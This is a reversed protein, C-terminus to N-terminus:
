GEGYEVFLSRLATRHPLNVRLGADFYDEISGYRREVEDFAAELNERRVGVLSDLLAVDGGRTVFADRAPKTMPELLRGSLLYDTMVHEHPVGLLTLLAAIAWGTRDKGTSCHIMAPAREADALGVFVDHLGRRASDLRVLDRFRQESIDDATQHSLANRAVQPDALARELQLPTLSSTGALVDVATYEVTDPLADPLREREAQSRLDFVSRLGLSELQDVEALRLGAPASSRYLQGRRLRGGDRTPYGGVDRLNPWALFGPTKNM